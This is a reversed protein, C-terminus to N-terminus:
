DSQSVIGHNCMRTSVAGMAILLVPQPNIETNGTKTNKKRKVTIKRRFNEIGCLDM